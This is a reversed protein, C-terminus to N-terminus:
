YEKCRSSFPTSPPTSTYFHQFTSKLFLIVLICHKQTFLNDSSSKWSQFTIGSNQISLCKTLIELEYYYQYLCHCVGLSEMFKVTSLLDTCKSKKESLLKFNKPWNNLTVPFIFGESFMFISNWRLSVWLIYQSCIISAKGFVHLSIIKFSLPFAFYKTIKSCGM